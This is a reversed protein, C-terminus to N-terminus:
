CCCGITPTNRVLLHGLMVALVAVLFVGGLTHWKYHYWYNEWKGRPTAPQEPATTRQLEEPKVGRLLWERAM